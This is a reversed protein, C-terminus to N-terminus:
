RPCTRLMCARQVWTLAIVTTNNGGPPDSQDSGHRKPARGFKWSVNLLVGRDHRAFDSVQYFRPDTTTFRMRDTNFPYIVRLTLNLRDGMLKQRAALSFRMRSSIRGQEVTM